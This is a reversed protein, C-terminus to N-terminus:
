IAMDPLNENIWESVFQSFITIEPKSKQKKLMYLYTTKYIPEKLPIVSIGEIISGGILEKSFFAIGVDNRVLELNTDIQSCQAALTPKYSVNEFADNLISYVGSEEGAFIFKDDKLDDLSVASSNALPHNNSAIITMYDRLLPIRHVRDGHREPAIDSITVDVKLNLLLDCLNKAQMEVPEIQIDPYAQCFAPILERLKWRTISPIIGVRLLGYDKQGHFTKEFQDAHQLLKEAETIFMEGESTLTMQRTTREFIHIGFEHEIKGIHQSLAPQTIGLVSAAKNFSNWKAVELAYRLQKLEM